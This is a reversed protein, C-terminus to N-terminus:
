RDPGLKKLDKDHLSSLLLEGDNAVRFQGYRASDYHKGQGEQFFFGNTAFKLKGGRVRYRLLVEDVALPLDSELRKFHGVSKEDLGVVVRGDSSDIDRRWGKNKNKPLAAYVENAVKYNLIMYDGQMLSRPDLPALELYVVRGEKLHREKGVISWNVLLLVILGAVLAIKNQM